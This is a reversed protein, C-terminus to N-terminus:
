PMAGVTINASKKEGNRLFEVKVVSGLPQARIMEVFERVTTKDLPKGNFSTLVDLPQLGADLAPSNAMVNRITIGQILSTGDFRVPSLGLYPTGKKGTHLQAGAKVFAEKGGPTYFYAASWYGLIEGQADQAFVSWEYRRERVADVPLRM